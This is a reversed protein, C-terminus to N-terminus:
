QWCNNTKKENLGFRILDKRHSCEHIYKIMEPTTTNSDETAMEYFIILEDNSLYLTKALANFDKKDPPPTNNQCTM